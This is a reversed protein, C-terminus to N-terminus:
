APTTSGYRAAAATPSRTTLTAGASRRSRARTSSPRPNPTVYAVNSAGGSARATVSTMTPSAINNLVGVNFPGDSATATVNTMTVLSYSAVGINHTSSGSAAASVHTIRMTSGSTDPNFIAIAEGTGGTNEVTLFRLESNSAGVVTGFNGAIGSATIKTAGEGSGEIDVWPKMTLGPAAGLDYVGPEVKLLYPNTQSANTIGALANELATGNQTATGVPGVVETRKPASAFDSANKGDLMDSDVVKSGSAYYRGDHNHSAGAFQTSDKGDLTDADRNAIGGPVDRLKTYSVPDDDDCRKEL